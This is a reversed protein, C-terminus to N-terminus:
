GERVQPEIRNKGGQVAGTNIRSCTNIQIIRNDQKIISISGNRIQKLRDLLLPQYDPSQRKLPLSVAM